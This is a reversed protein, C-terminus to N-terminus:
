MMMTVMMMKLSFKDLKTHSPKGLRRRGEPKFTLTMSMVMMMMMMEDTMTRMKLTIVEKEKQYPEFTLTESIAVYDEGENASGDITEVRIIITIIIIIIILHLFTSKNSTKILM